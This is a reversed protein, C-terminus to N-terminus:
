VEKFYSCFCYLSRSLTWNKEDKAFNVILNGEQAPSGDKKSLERSKKETEFFDQGLLDLSDGQLNPPGSANIVGGLRSVFDNNLEGRYMMRIIVDALFGGWSHGYIFVPVDPPVYQKLFSGIAEIDDIFGKDGHLNLSGQGHFTMDFSLVDIGLPIFHNAIPLVAVSSSTTTGGGHLFLVVGSAQSDVLWKNETDIDKLSEIFNNILAYRSVIAETHYIQDNHKYSVKLPM